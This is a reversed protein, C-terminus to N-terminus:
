FMTSLLVAASPSPIVSKSIETGNGAGRDLLSAWSTFGPLNQVRWPIFPVLLFHNGNDPQGLTPSSPVEPGPHTEM